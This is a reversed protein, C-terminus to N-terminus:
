LASEVNVHVEVPSYEPLVPPAREPAADHTNGTTRNHSLMTRAADYVEDCEVVGTEDIPHPAIGYEEVQRHAIVGVRLASARCEGLLLNALTTKGAAAYGTVIIVPTRRPAAMAMAKFVEGPRRCPPLAALVTCVRCPTPSPRAM